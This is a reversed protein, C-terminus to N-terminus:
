KGNKEKAASSVDKRGFAHVVMGAVNGGVAVATLFEIMNLWYKQDVKGLGFFVSVLILVLLCWGVKKGGLIQFLNSWDM